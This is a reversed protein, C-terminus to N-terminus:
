RGWQFYNTTTYSHPCLRFLPLSWYLCFCHGFSLLKWGAAKSKLKRGALPRELPLYHDLLSTYSLSSSSSHNKYNRDYIQWACSCPPICVTKIIVSSPIWLTGSTWISNYQSLVYPKCFLCAVVTPGLICQSFYCSLLLMEPSFSSHM